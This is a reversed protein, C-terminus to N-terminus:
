FINYRIDKVSIHYISRSVDLLNWTRESKKFSSSSTYHKYSVWSWASKKAVRQHETWSQKLPRVHLYILGAANKTKIKGNEETWKEKTKSSINGM